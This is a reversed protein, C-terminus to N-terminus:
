QVKCFRLVREPMVDRSDSSAFPFLGNTMRYYSSLYIRGRPLGKGLSDKERGTGQEACMPRPDNVIQNSLAEPGGQLWHFSPALNSLVVDVNGILCERLWFGYLRGEARSFGV